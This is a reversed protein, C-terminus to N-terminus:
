VLLPLPHHPRVVKTVFKEREGGAAVASLESMRATVIGFRLWEKEGAAKLCSQATTKANLTRSFHETRFTPLAKTLFPLFVWSRSVQVRRKSVQSRASVEERFLRGQRASSQCKAAEGEPLRERVPPPRRRRLDGSSSSSPQFSSSLSLAELPLSSSSSSIAVSSSLVSFPSDPLLAMFLPPPVGGRIYPFSPPPLLCSFVLSLCCSVKACMKPDIQSPLHISSEAAVISIKQSLGCAKPSHLHASNRM